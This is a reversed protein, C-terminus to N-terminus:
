LECRYIIGKAYNTTTGNVNRQAGFVLTMDHTSGTAKTLEIKQPELEDLCGVYVDISLSGKKHQLVFIERSWGYNRDTLKADTGWKIYPTAYYQSDSSNLLQFGASRTNLFCSALVSDKASKNFQADIMLTWDKDEAMLAIGTDVCTTGDFSMPEAILVQKELNSYDYSRGLPISIRDGNPVITGMDEEGFYNM